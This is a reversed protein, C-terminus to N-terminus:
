RPPSKLRILTPPLPPPPDPSVTSTGEFLESISSRAGINVTTTSADIVAAVSTATILEDEVDALVDEGEEDEIDKDRGPKVEEADDEEM